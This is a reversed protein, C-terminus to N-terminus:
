ENEAPENALRRFYAEVMQRYKDPPPAAQRNIRLETISAEDFLFDQLLRAGQQLSERTAALEGDWSQQGGRGLQGSLGGFRPDGSIQELEQMRRSWQSRIEPLRDAPALEPDRAYSALEELTSGLERGLSRARNLPNAAIQSRAQGLGTALAELDDAAGDQLPQAMAPQGYLLANAAREMSGSTTGGRAQGAAERLAQGVDPASNSLDGARRELAEIFGEFQEKLRRQEAEMAALEAPSPSAEAAESSAQAAEAQSRALRGAARAAAELEQGAADALLAELESTAFRLAERARLGPRLASEANAQGARSAASQMQRRAESLPGRVARGDPIRQLLRDLESAQRALEEQERAAEGAEQDSWSTRAAREFAANLRNQGAVLEEMAAKAEALQTATSEQPAEEQSSSEEPSSEGEGSSGESPEKSRTNDRFANELKLLASLSESQPIFSEGPFGADLRVIAQDNAELSAEFLSALDTRGASELDERLDSYLRNIEVGLSSLSALLEPAREEITGPDLFTLRHTERLLRKQEAIIERFDIEEQEMPMGDREVPPEPTRIEIFLLDSRTLNSEPERNDEAEVHLALFEGEAAGLAELSIGTRLEAETLPPPDAGDASEQLPLSLVREGMGSLALHLRGRALGFDDAAYVELTFAQDPALTTDETPNLIEVVPPRDPIVDLQQVPSESSRGSADTLLFQFSASDRALLTSEFLSEGSRPLPQDEEDLVLSVSDAARSQLSFTISSGEVVELDTLGEFADPPLGTYAPPAIRIELQDIRAPEYVSIEKWASKLAPTLIRFRLSDRMGYFTFRGEGAANIVVPERYASRSDEWEIFASKEWRLIRTSLTVDADLPVEPPFAGIRLGSSSGRFLDAAHFFAKKAPVSALAAVFMLLALLLTLVVSSTRELFHTTRRKWDFGRLQSAASELVHAELPNPPGRHKEEIDAATALVDNLQPHVEEIRRAMRPLNLHFRVRFRRFAWGWMGAVVPVSILFLLLATSERIPDLRANFASVLGWFLAWGALGLGGALLLHRRNLRRCFATIEILHNHM